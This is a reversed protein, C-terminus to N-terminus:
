HPQQRRRERRDKFTEREARLRGLTEEAADADNLEMEAYAWDDDFPASFTQDEKAGQRTDAVYHETEAITRELWSLRIWGDGRAVAEIRRIADELELLAVSYPLRRRFVELLSRYYWLQDERTRPAFRAWFQEGLHQSDVAIARANHIKDAISVLLTDQDKTELASLYREKRTRWDAKAVGEPELSDSCAAVMDRVRPGFRDGITVLVEEGGHDEAADHLLAAIAQDEDGGLEMVLASVALLHSVYPIDTGKRVDGAHLDAAFALAESFRTTVRPAHRVSVRSDSAGGRRVGSGVAASRGM